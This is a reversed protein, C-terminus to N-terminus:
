GRDLEAIMDKVMQLMVSLSRPRVNDLTDHRTHYNFVLKSTDQALLCTAGDMFQIM